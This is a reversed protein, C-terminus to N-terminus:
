DGVGEYRRGSFAKFAALQILILLALVPFSSPSLLFGGGLRVQDPEVVPSAGLTTMPVDDAARGFPDLHRSPSFGLGVSLVGHKVGKPARTNWILQANVLSLVLLL